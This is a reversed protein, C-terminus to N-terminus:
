RSSHPLGHREDHGARQRRADRPQHSESQQWTKGTALVGANNVWLDLSGGRTTAAAATARCAEADTVDLEAFSGGAGLESATAAAADADVDTAQVM